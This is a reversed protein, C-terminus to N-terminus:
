GLSKPSSDLLEDAKTQIGTGDERGTERHLSQNANEIQKLIFKKHNNLYLLQTQLNKISAECVGLEYYLEDIM